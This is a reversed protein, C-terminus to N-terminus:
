SRAGFKSRPKKAYPERATSSEASKAKMRGDIERLELQRVIGKDLSSAGEFMRDMTTVKSTDWNDIPQNFSTAKEFMGEMTTVKSTNWDGIPQNFNRAGWFM